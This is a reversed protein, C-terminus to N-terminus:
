PIEQNILQALASANVDGLARLGEVTGRRDPLAEDQSLKWRGQLKSIPIEIGVVARALKGIFDAPADDVRWPLAHAAENQDTLDHLLQLLWQPDEVVRPRGSAHVAVYDWTPVVRGEGSGKDLRSPYWTPTIYAHPGQFLVLSDLESSLQQWVRNARSVHGRLTGFEGASRDLVFPIHNAILGEAGLTVWAGLSHSEILSQMKNLDHQAHYPPIYM